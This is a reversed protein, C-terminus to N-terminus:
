ADTHQEAGEGVIERVIKVLCERDQEVRAEGRKRFEGEKNRLKEIEERFDMHAQLEAVGDSRRHFTRSLIVSSSGLRVHEALVCEGPLLGEHVRAIGGFGFPLGAAHIVEAMREVRGDALPEFMFRDGMELHLDNLGIYVESLGPVKVIEDLREVAARTEVLPILGAHGCVFNSFKQVEEASHFMPLMLLDAGGALAQEVEVESGDHLPNLRVLLEHGPIARRILAVDAISHASILTDRHGQRKQKGLIELDVFIRDVGCEAAYRALEENNTILMLKIM